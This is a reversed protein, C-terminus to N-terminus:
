LVMLYPDSTVVESTRRLAQHLAVRLDDAMRRCCELEKELEGRREREKWLLKRLLAEKESLLRAKHAKRERWPADNCRRDNLPAKRARRSLSKAM